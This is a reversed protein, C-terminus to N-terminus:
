NQATAPVVFSEMYISRDCGTEHEQKKASSSRVDTMSEVAFHALYNQSSPWQIVFASLM